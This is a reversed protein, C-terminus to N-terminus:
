IYKLASLVLTLVQATKTKTGDDRYERERQKNTEPYISIHIETYETSDAPNMGETDRPQLSQVAEHDTARHTHTRTHIERECM